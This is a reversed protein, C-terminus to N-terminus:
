SFTTKMLDQNEVFGRAKLASLINELEDGNRYDLSYGSTFDINMRMRVRYILQFQILVESGNYAYEKRIRKNAWESAKDETKKVRILFDALGNGPKLNLLLDNGSFAMVSDIWEVEGM